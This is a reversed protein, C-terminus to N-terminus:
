EAGGMEVDEVGGAGKRVEELGEDELADEEDEELQEGRTWAAVELVGAGVDVLAVLAGLVTTMDHEEEELELETAWAKKKAKKARPHGVDDEEVARKKWQKKLM